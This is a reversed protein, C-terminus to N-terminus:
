KRLIPWRQIPPQRLIPWRKIPQQVEDKMEGLCYNACYNTSQLPWLLQPQRLPRLQPHQHLRRHHPQRLPELERENNCVTRQIPQQVEDNMEGLCYNACYNTSQSLQFSKFAPQVKSRVARIAISAGHFSYLRHFSASQTQPPPTCLCSSYWEHAIPWSASSPTM